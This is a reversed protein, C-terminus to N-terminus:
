GPNVWDVDLKRLDPDTTRTVRVIDGVHLTGAVYLLVFLDCFLISILAPPFTPLSYMGDERACSLM